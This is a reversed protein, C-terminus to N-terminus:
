IFFKPPFQINEEGTGAARGRRRVPRLMRRRRGQVQARLRHWHWPPGTKKYLFCVCKSKGCRITFFFNFDAGPRGRDRERRLLEKRVHAHLRGQGPRVRVAERHARGPGRAGPRGDHVHVRPRPLLHHCHGPFPFHPHFFVITAPQRLFEMKLFMNPPMRVGIFSESDGKSGAM